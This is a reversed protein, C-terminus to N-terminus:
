IVLVNQVCIPKPKQGNIIKTVHVSAIERQCKECLM